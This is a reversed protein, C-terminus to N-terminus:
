PQDPKHRATHYLQVGKGALLSGALAMLFLLLIRIIAFGASQILATVDLASAGARILEEPTSNYMTYGALFVWLLLGVGSFFCLLGLLSTGVDSAKPERVPKAAPKAPPDAAIPELSKSM